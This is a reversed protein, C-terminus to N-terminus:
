WRCRCRCRRRRRRRRERQRPPTTSPVVNVCVGAADPLTRTGPSRSPHRCTCRSSPATHATSPRRRDRRRVAVTIWSAACAVTVDTGAPVIPARGPSPSPCAPRAVGVPVTVNEHNVLPVQVPVPPPSTSRRERQRATDRVPRRERLRRVHRPAERELRGIRTVAGVGARGPRTLRQRDVLTADVVTVTIWLAACAVTVDTGAPVIPARGPSPSRAGTQRRRRPRHRERPEGVAGAGAGAAAVDAGNVSSPATHRVPRRERLRRVHRPAERELRRVRTVAGVGARGPRTLRQRHRRDRRDVTVTIWSAACAVTVDTGAPVIPARGPSPSPCTPRGVGVPVTVNVHNVLPVQVPVPPPSTSRREREVRRHRPRRRRERLRRSTDPLKANWAVYEPSPM